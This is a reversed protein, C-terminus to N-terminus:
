PLLYPYIKELLEQKNLPKNLFDNCGAALIKDIDEDLAFSSQAIIPITIESERISRAAAYGDLVPMNVDMIILDIDNMSIASELLEKGNKVWFIGAGTSELIKKLIIYNIESDEAILIKKDRLENAM